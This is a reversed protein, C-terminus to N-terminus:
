FYCSYFDLEDFLKGDYRPQIVKIEDDTYKISFQEFLLLEPKFVNIEMYATVNGSWTIIPYEHFRKTSTDVNSIINCHNYIFSNKKYLDIIEKDAISITKFNDQRYKFLYKDDDDM